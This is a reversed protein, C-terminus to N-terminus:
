HDFLYDFLRPRVVLRPLITQHNHQDHIIIVIVIIIIIVIIISRVCLLVISFFVTSISGFGTAKSKM